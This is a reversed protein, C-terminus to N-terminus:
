HLEMELEEATFEQAGLRRLELNIRLLLNYDSIYHLNHGLFSGKDGNTEKVLRKLLAEYDRRTPYQAM